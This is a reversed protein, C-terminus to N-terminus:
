KDKPDFQKKADNLLETFLIGLVWGALFTIM